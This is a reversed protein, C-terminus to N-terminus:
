TLVEFCTCDSERNLKLADEKESHKMIQLPRWYEVARLKVLTARRIMQHVQELESRICRKIGGLSIYDVLTLYPM